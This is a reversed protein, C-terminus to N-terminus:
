FHKGFFGFMISEYGDPPYNWKKGYVHIRRTEGEANYVKGGELLWALLGGTLNYITIGKSEMEKAFLGSRYSITCYGIVTMDKYRTLHQLFEEKTLAHPLMSIKMEAPKRTDVFIVQKEQMIKMAQRPSIDQITPFDKRKYESYMEYVIEKKQADPLETESETIHPILCALFVCLGIKFKRYDRM